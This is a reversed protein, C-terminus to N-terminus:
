QNKNVLSELDRLYQDVELNHAKLAAILHNLYDTNPGSIGASNRIVESTAELTENPVVYTQDTEDGQFIAVKFSKEQDQDPYFDVMKLQYSIERFALSQLTEDRAEPALHYAIGSTKTGPESFLTVARGPNDLTGRHNVSKLWFRRKFNKIYGTMAQDSPFNPKWILSGYAFLWQHLHRM